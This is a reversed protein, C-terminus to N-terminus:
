RERLRVARWRQHRAAPAAAGASLARPFRATETQGQVESAVALFLAPGLLAVAM